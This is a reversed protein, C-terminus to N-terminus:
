GPCASGLGAGGAGSIAPRARWAATIQPGEGGGPNNIGETTRKSEGM